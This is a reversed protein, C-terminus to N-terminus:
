KQKFISTKGARIFVGPSLNATFATNLQRVVLLHHTVPESVSFHLARGRSLIAAALEDYRVDDTTMLLALHPSMM